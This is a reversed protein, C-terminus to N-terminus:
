LARDIKHLGSSSRAKYKITTDIYVLMLDVREVLTALRKDVKFSEANDRDLGM